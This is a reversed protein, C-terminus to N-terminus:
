YLIEPALYGKRTIIYIVREGNVKKIAYKARSIVRQREQKLEQIHEEMTKKHHPIKGEEALSRVGQSGYSSSCFTKIRKETKIRPRM